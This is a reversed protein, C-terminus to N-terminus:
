KLLDEIGKQMRGIISNDYVRKGGKYTSPERFTFFKDLQRIGDTFQKWKKDDGGDYVLYGYENIDNLAKKYDSETVNKRKTM